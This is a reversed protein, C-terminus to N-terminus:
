VGYWISLSSTKGPINKRELALFASEYFILLNSHTQRFRKFSIKFKINTIYRLTVYAHTQSVKHTSHMCFSFVFKMWLVNSSSRTTALRDHCRHSDFCFTMYIMKKNCLLLCVNIKLRVWNTRNNLKNTRLTKKQM